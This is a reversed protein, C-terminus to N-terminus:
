DWRRATRRELPVYERQTLVEWWGAPVDVHRHEQHTLAAPRELFVVRRGPGSDYVRGALEHAHGTREGAIRVGALPQGDPGVARVPAAPEDIPVLLVDGQRIQGRTDVRGATETETAQM